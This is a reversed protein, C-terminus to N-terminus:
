PCPRCRRRVLRLRWTAEKSTTEKSTIEKSTAEKSTGEKSTAEKSTSEKSIAEKSTVEKSTTAHPIVELLQMVEAPSFYHMGVINEPRKAKAAIDGIPDEILDLYTAVAEDASEYPCDESGINEKVEIIAPWDIMQEMIFKLDANDTYFNQEAM